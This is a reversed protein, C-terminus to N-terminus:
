SVERLTEDLDLKEGHCVAAALEGAPLLRSLERFLPDIRRARTRADTAPHRRVLAAVEAAHRPHHSRSLVRAFGALVSLISASQELTSALESAQRFYQQATASQDEECAAWGLSDWAAMLGWRITLREFTDISEGWFRKAESPEGQLWAIDALQLKAVARTFANGPQLALQCCGQAEEFRHQDKMIEALRVQSLGRALPYYDEVLSLEERASAEALDYKGTRRQVDALGQLCIAELWRDDREQCLLRAESFLSLADPYNGADILALGLATLSDALNTNGGALSRQLAISQLLCDRAEGRKLWGRQAGLLSLARAQQAPAALRCLDMGRAGLEEGESIRDLRCLSLGWTLLAQGTIAAEADDELLPFARSALEVADAHRGQSAVLAAQLSLARGVIVAAESDPHPAQQTLSEAAARLASEGESLSARFVHFAYLGDLSRKLDVQRRHECMFRWASRVNARELEIENAALQPQPGQLAGARAHLFEAHYSCYIARTRAEDDHTKRLELSAHERILEHMTLRHTETDLQLIRRQLLVDLDTRTAHAIAEAAALSFSSRFISLRRAVVRERAELLSWAHEIAALLARQREPVDGADVSLLQPTSDGPDLYFSWPSDSLPRYNPPLALDQSADLAGGSLAQRTRALRGELDSPGVLSSTLEIGLPMGHLFGCIRPVDFAFRGELSFSPVGSRAGALFLQVSESGATLESTATVPLGLGSLPFLTEAHLGMRKRSTALVSVRPALGLLENFFSGGEVLQEFDDLVLLLSKDRLCEFLQRSADVGPVIRCGVARALALAIQDASAIERLTSFFAGREAYQRDLALERFPVIGFTLRRAAELALRTKGIGAPGMLTLVRTRPSALLRSLELLEAERGVFSTSVTPLGNSPRRALPHAQIAPSRLPTRPAPSIKPSILKLIAELEVGVQRMSAIRRSPNKDLMREVLEVLRAPAERCRAALSPTPQHLIATVIAAPHQGIFPRRGALAEFLTVGLAWIDAREDPSQGWLAEPSQYAVTGLLMGTRTIAQAGIRALGFDSLRPTGDEAILVNEPKIDRHIVALHHARALADTLELALSVVRVTSLRTHLLDRLCGGAVYEMIIYLREQEVVTTLMKVINPHDLQRLIEGEREFRRRLEGTRDLLETKLRKIAVSRGTDGDHGQYVVGMGGEAIRPGLEFRGALVRPGPRESPASPTESEAAAAVAELCSDCSALHAEVRAHETGDLAGCAFVALTEDGICGSADGQGM